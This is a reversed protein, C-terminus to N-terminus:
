QARLVERLTGFIQDIHATEVILPPSLAITDGSQRVLVGREFCRMFVEFARTGVKGPISELELGLILGYTRIDVVHPLGRLSHAADEWYKSLSDARTLLGEREYLELTAMGAACASPHASYTYGHFLEIGDPGQMFAEYVAKSVLVAGMPICGNTLGKALTIIDPTVGFEQAAFPAGTRGFGTIVEDFILLIGHRDCIARLRELYGRPPLLVGTSGAIPEVIVAAINSADHLAVLRELEDALQAGHAPLGRSFANRTLDHTHPLHDVGALLAASWTRRNPLIGGVSIGGFGVGHYARERGILRTRTGEGRMRHFALAIKLATDVSESGSNTFFVHDLGGPAIKVLQNALQFALPHGMQFTPAYDLTELQSAVAQTIERRGHGANVCWLGAVGDLIQRGDVTWYHMGSARALLRPKAKFQRNATFPLWLAELDSRSLSTSEPSM